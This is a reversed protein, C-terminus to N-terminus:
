NLIIHMYYYGTRHVTEIAFILNSSSKRIQSEKVCYGQSTM